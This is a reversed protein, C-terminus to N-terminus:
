IHWNSLNELEFVSMSLYIKETKIQNCVTQMLIKLDLLVLLELTFSHFLSMEFVM